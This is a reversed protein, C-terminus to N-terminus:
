ILLGYIWRGRDTQSASVPDTAMFVMGFAFGGMVFHYHAPLFLMPNDSNIAIGFYNTLYATSVMGIFTSFMIKWNGIGTILLFLTRICLTKYNFIFLTMTFM